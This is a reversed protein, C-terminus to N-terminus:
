EPIVITKIHKENKVLEYSLVIERKFFNVSEKLFRERILNFHTDPLEVIVSFLRFGFGDFTSETRKVGYVNFNVRYIRDLIKVMKECEEVSGVLELFM